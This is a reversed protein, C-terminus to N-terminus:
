SISCRKNKKVPTLIELGLECPEFIIFDDDLVRGELTLQQLAVPYEEEEEINNKIQKVSISQLFGITLVKFFIVRIVNSGWGGGRLRAIFHVTSGNSINYYMLPLNNELLRGSFVLRNEKAPYFTLEEYKEKVNEVTAWSPVRLKVIDGTLSQIVLEFEDGGLLNIALILTSNEKINYDFLTRDEELWKESFWLRNLDDPIGEKAQIKAKVDKITDTKNVKLSILKRSGLINVFIQM